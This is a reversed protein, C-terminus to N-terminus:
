SIGDSKSESSGWPFKMIQHHVHQHLRTSILFTVSGCLSCSKNLSIRPVLPVSPVPFNQSRKGRPLGEEGRVPNKKEKGVQLDERKEGRSGLQVRQVGGKLVM